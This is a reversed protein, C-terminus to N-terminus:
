EVEAAIGSLKAEHAAYLDNMLTGAFSVRRV